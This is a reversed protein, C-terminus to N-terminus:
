SPGPRRVAQRVAELLAEGPVPKEFVRNAGISRAASLGSRGKGSVAIIVADPKLGRLTSILDLGDGDPMVIDTVVVHILHEIYLRVAEGGSAASLVQHGASELLAALGLLDSEEDDVVLINAM